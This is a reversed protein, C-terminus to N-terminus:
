DELEQGGGSQRVARGRLQGYASGKRRRTCRRSRTPPAAAPTQPACAWLQLEAARQQDGFLLANFGRGANSPLTTILLGTVVSTAAGWIDAKFDLGARLPRLNLVVAAVVVAVVAVAVGRWNEKLWGM